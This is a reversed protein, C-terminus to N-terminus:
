NVANDWLKRLPMIIRQLITLDDTIVDADGNMLPMFPLQKGYTTKLGKPFIVDVSYYVADKDQMPVLSIDRIEAKIKGYENDPFNEFRVNVQQGIRVKGSRSIPLLLKGVLEVENTPIINFVEDSMNINQNVTWYKTFTIKGDIPSLLVYQMQWNEIDVMLQRIQSIIKNRFANTKEVYQNDTEFKSEEMQLIQLKMNDCSSKSNEYSIQSQIYQSRSNEYDQMSVVKDRHLISDRRFKNYALEHQEKVLVLQRELMRLQEAYAILKGNIFEIKSPYYNMARFEEYEKLSLYLVHFSSQMMGLTLNKHPLENNYQQLFRKLYLVDTTSATNDVVALFDGARVTQNNEVMLEKIKGSTKALVGVSPQASTLTIKAPITDPYKIVACCVGLLVFICAFLVIGRRIIWHPVDGLVDAFEESRLNIDEEEQEKM